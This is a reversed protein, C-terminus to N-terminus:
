FTNIILGPFLNVTVISKYNQSASEMLIKNQLCPQLYTQKQIRKLYYDPKYDFTLYNRKFLKYDFGISYRMKYFDNLNISRFAEMVIFPTIKNM